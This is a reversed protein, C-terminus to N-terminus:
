SDGGASMTGPAISMIAAVNDLDARAAAVHPGSGTASDVLLLGALSMRIERDPIGIARLAGTLGAIAHTPKFGPAMLGTLARLMTAHAQVYLDVDTM